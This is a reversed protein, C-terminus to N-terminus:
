SCAVRCFRTWVQFTFLHVDEAVRTPLGSARADARDQNRNARRQRGQSVIIRRGGHVPTRQRGREHSTKTQDESTVVVLAALRELDLSSISRDKM